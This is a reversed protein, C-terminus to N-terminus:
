NLNSDKRPQWKEIRSKIRISFRFLELYNELIIYFGVLAMFLAIIYVLHFSISTILGTTVSGIGWGAASMSAAVGMAWGQSHEDAINSYMTILTMYALGVGIATPNASLWIAPLKGYIGIAYGLSILLMSAWLIRNLSFYKVAIRVLLLLTFAYTVSVLSMFHGLQSTTFHFNSTLLLATTQFFMCYTLQVIFLLISVHRVRKDKFGESLQAIGKVFSIKPQKRVTFTENFVIILFIGNAFAMVATFLFPGTYCCSVSPLFSTEALVGGLWPGLTFGLSSALSIFSLNVTKKEQPSIDIIAAQAMGISGALLGTFARAFVLLFLSKIYLSFGLALMGIAEGFLSLLLVKKRGVQDSMDGLIPAGILMAIPFAGITLGYFLNAMFPSLGHFYSNESASGFVTAFVPYVIGVGLADILITMLLPLYVYKKKFEVKGM